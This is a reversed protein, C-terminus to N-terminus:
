LKKNDTIITSSYDTEQTYIAYKNSMESVSGSGVSGIRGTSSGSGHGVRFCLRKLM